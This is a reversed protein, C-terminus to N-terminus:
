AHDGNFVVKVNIELDFKINIISIRVVWPDTNVKILYFLKATIM